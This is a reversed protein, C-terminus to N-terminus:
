ELEPHLMTILEIVAEGVRPGLGTLLLGDMAHIREDLGAPTESIGPVGLLGEAGGVSELGSEFLLLADPAITVAGEATLPQYGEWDTVANEVGALEFMVDVSTGSGAASVTDVGRAYIMMVRPTSDVQDLLESAKALDAEMKAVLEEGRTEVGLAAAVDRVLQISEDITEPAKFQVITVGSEQLQDIAEPPNAADTTLILTPALALIPESSLRRVYGVQPLDAVAPPYTSSSDTAVVKDGMGLAYVIETLPGDVPILVSDDEIVVENGEYDTVTRPLPTVEASEASSGASELAEALQPVLQDIAYPLSLVSSFSFAEDVNQNLIVYRGEKFADLQSLLPDNIIDEEGNDLYRAQTFVIIDRDMLDVQEESLVAFFNGATIEDLDAQPAFGLNQFFRPRADQTSFVSRGFGPTDGTAVVLNKDVFEPNAEIAAAFQAKVDDVIAEAEASKGVAEGILIAAEDWPMGFANYDGSQALTPAIKALQDYEEELIGSSVAVILDPDYSLITEFNIERWALNLVDPLEDGSFSDEAWPFIGGEDEPGFWYRVAVPNTELAFLIDQDSYGISVIREPAEEITIEGFAHEITVPFAGSAAEASADVSIEGLGSEVDSIMADFTTLGADALYWNVPDLFVINGAAGATTQNVLDNDLVASAPEAEAGIAADRDVAFIVDPNQELIFEFSIADGHTEATMTDATPAVNLLDHIFGFRSAPGYGSVEGGSTLVILGTYGTSEAKAQVEAIHDNIAAIEAAVTDEMDFIMGFNNLYSEFTEIKNIWDVTMDITPAIESMDAYMPQTRLGVIILDPDLGNVAEMDAERFSGVNVYESGNYKELHPPMLPGQPVGAVPIGLKDLTDLASYNFVVITEPNKAVTTEGSPHTVTVMEPEDAMEEEEAEEEEAEEMEEEATDAEEVVESQEAAPAEEQAAPEETSGGCAAILLLLTFLALLISWSLGKSQRKQKSISM